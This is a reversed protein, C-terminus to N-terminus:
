CHGIWRTKGDWTSRPRDARRALEPGVAVAALAAALMQM